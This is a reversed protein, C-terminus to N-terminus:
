KTPGFFWRSAYKPRLSMGDIFEVGDFERGIKADFQRQTPQRLSFSLGDM